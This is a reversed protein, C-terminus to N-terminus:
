SEEEFIADWDAIEQDTYARPALRPQAFHKDWEACQEATWNPYRAARRTNLELRLQRARHEPNGATTHDALSQM